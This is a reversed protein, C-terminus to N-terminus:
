YVDLPFVTSYDSKLVMKIGTKSKKHSATTPISLKLAQM